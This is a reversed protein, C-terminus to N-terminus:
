GYGRKMDENKAEVLMMVPAEVFLQRSTRTLIYDCFGTLGQEKDV